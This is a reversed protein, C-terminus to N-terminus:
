VVERFRIHAYNKRIASLSWKFEVGNANDNYDRVIFYNDGIEDVYPIAKGYPTLDIYWKSHETNPEICELFIPDIDIRCEGDVLTGMGEDIYRTEPSERAALAVQGYITDEICNKSGTVQLSNMKIPLLNMLWLGDDQQHIGGQFEGDLYFDIAGGIGSQYLNSVGAIVLQLLETGAQSEGFVELRNPPTLQIYVTDNKGGSRIRSSYIKGKVVELGYERLAGEMWSGLLVRLDGFSDYVKLGDTENRMYGPWQAFEESTYFPANVICWALVKDIPQYIRDIRLEDITTGIQNAGAKDSGIYAYTDLTTVQGPNEIYASEAGNIILSLRNLKWQIAINDWDTLDSKDIGYAVNNEEAVQVSLDYVTPTVAGDTTSLDVQIKLRASSIDMGDTLVPIAQGSTCNVFSGYTAGNDTSLAAKVIQTTNAPQDSGWSIAHSDANGVPSIDYIKQWSGSAKYASTVAISIQSVSPTASDDTTALTTKIKLKASSLDAGAAIGPIASGSTCTQYSGYNVGDLAVAAQVAVSTNAPTTATWSIVSDKAIGVASLDYEQERYGSLTYTGPSETGEMMEVEYIRSSTYQYNDIAYIRYFLYSGWSTLIFEQWTAQKAIIGTYLDDWNTGDNSGQFIFNKVQYDIASGHIRIKRVTKAGSVVLYIRLWHPLPGTGSRWHSTTSNDFAKDAEFGTGYISDATVPDAGTFDPGYVMSGPTYELQLKDDAVEVDSLTGQGFEAVTDEVVSLDTGSGELEIGDEGAVVDSLTGTAYDAADDELVYLQVKKDEIFLKGDNAIGAKIAQNGSSDALDFLVAGNPCTSLNYVRFNISTQLAHIIDQTPMQLVKGAAVSVGQGWRSPVFEGNFVLPIGKHSNLNGDLHWLGTCNSDAAMGVPQTKSPDYGPEFTTASGITIKDAAIDKIKASTIAADKIHATQIAAEHIHAALIAAEAIAASGIAANAIKTATVAGEALMEEGILKKAIAQKWVIQHEGDNNIAILFGTDSLDPMTNSSGYITAMSDWYIYKNATHGAAITYRRGNWFLDHENWAIEGNIPSNDTWLDDSVILFGANIKSASIAADSIQEEVLQGILSTASITGDENINEARKWIEAANPLDKVGGGTIHKILLQLASLQDEIEKFNRDLAMLMDENFETIRFPLKVVDQEKAM